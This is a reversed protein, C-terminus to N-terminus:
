LVLAAADKTGDGFMLSRQGAARWEATGLSAVSRRWRRRRRRRTASLLEVELGLGRLAAVAEAADPRLPGAFRFAVPAALPGARYWLTPGEEASEAAGCLLASGLREEGPPLGAGPIEEVGEAAQGLM